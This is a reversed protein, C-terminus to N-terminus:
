SYLLKWSPRLKFLITTQLFIQMNQCVNNVNRFIGITHYQLFDKDKCCQVSADNNDCGRSFDTLTEARESSNQYHKICYFIYLSMKKWLACLLVHFKFMCDLKETSIYWHIVSHLSSLPAEWTRGSFKELVYIPRNKPNKPDVKTVKPWRKM